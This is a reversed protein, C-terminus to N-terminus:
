RWPSTLRRWWTRALRRRRGHVTVALRGDTTFYATAAPREWPGPDLGADKVAGLPAQRTVGLARVSVHVYWHGPRLGALPISAAFGAGDQGATDPEAEVRVQAGSTGECLVIEVQEDRATVREIAARGRILLADGSWSVMDLRQDVGVEATIDADKRPVGRLYPYVAYVRSGVVVAGERRGAAEDRILRALEDLLDHRVCFARMRQGVSLQARIEDTLWVDLVKRTAAAMRRRLDDSSDLFREDYRGLVERILAAPDGTPDRSVDGRRVATM